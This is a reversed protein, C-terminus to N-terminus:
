KLLYLFIHYLIIISSELSPLNLIENDFNAAPINTSDGSKTKIASAVDTLFNTLNDIRAM